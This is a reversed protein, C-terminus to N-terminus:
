QCGNCLRVLQNADALATPWYFDHRFAKAVIARSSAHHGCEGQHIDKLNQTGEERSVCRQFIGSVNRKHLENNIITFASARRKIQRAALEDEPLEDNALYALFPQIWSPAAEIVLVDM